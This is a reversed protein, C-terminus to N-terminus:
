LGGGEMGGGIGASEMHVKFSLVVTTSKPGSVTQRGGLDFSFEQSLYGLGASVSHM